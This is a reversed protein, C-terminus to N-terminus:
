MWPSYGPVLGALPARGEQLGGPAAAAAGGALRARKPARAGGGPPAARRPRRRAAPPAAIFGGRELADEVTAAESILCEPLRPAAAAPAAPPAAAGAGCLLARRARPRAAPPAARAAGELAAALSLALAARSLAGALLQAGAAAGPAAVFPPPQRPLMRCRRADHAHPPLEHAAALWAGGEGGGGGPAEEAPPALPYRAGGEQGPLVVILTPFEVIAKGALQSGLPADIDLKYYQVANAPCQERRMLVPLAAAGGGAAAAADAYARLALRRAGGGAGPAYALHAELLKRLPQDEDARADVLVLGRGGGGAAAPAAAAAAGPAAGPAPRPAPQPQWRQPHHHQPAPAAAAAAAAAAQAAAAAEPDAEPFVWEVRWQLKRSRFNYYTTSERRRQMGPPMIMLSVGRVRAQHALASLAQPLQPRPAPPRHRRAVDDARAVEELWRYDSLLERDGFDSLAVFALRDRKGSCGTAEKHGRVCGLGCSRVGCGPCRYKPPAAGCVGCLPSDQEQEQAEEAEHEPQAEPSGERPAGAADGGGGGGGGDGPGRGGAADPGGAQAPAHQKAQQAVLAAALEQMQAMRPPDPKAASCRARTRLAAAAAQQKPRRRPPLRWLLGTLPRRGVIYRRLTRGSADTS